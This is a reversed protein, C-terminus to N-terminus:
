HNRMLTFSKLDFSIFFMRAATLICLEKVTVVYLMRIYQASPFTIYQTVGVHALFKKINFNKVKGSAIFEQSM